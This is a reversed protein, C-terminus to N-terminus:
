NFDKYVVLNKQNIVRPLVNTFLPQVSFDKPFRRELEGFFRKESEPFLPNPIIQIEVEGIKSHVICFDLVEGQTITHLNLATFSIKNGQKGEFIINKRRSEINSFKSVFGEHDYELAVAMDGTDYRLQPLTRNFLGTAVIRGVEGPKVAKGKEDVIEVLGYTPSVEYVIGDSSRAMAVKETMGYLVAVKANPFVLGINSNDEKRFPESIPMICKIDPFTLRNKLAAEVLVRLVSPYCTLAVCGFSSIQKLGRIGFEPDMSLCSIRLEKLPSVWKISRAGYGRISAKRMNFDFGSLGWAWHVYALERSSIGADHVVSTPRGTSSGSTTAIRSKRPLNERRSNLENTYSDRNTIPLVDFSSQGIFNEIGFLSRVQKKRYEWADDGTMEAIGRYFFYSKGLLYKVPIFKLLNFVPNGSFDRAVKSRLVAVWSV